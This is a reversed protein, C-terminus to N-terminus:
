RASRNKVFDVVEQDSKSDRVKTLFEPLTINVSRLFPRDGGCGYMLDESLQGQLKAKAKAIIRPLWRIGEVSASKAPLQHTQVIETAPKGGLQNIFFDRRIATVELVDQYSPDSSHIYDEVYDFLEQTTCGISSLFAVEEVEFMSVPTQRGASYRSLAADYITKFQNQWTDESM